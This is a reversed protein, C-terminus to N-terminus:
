KRTHTHTSHQMILNEGRRLIKSLFTTLLVYQPSAKLHHTAFYSPEEKGKHIVVTSQQAKLLILMFALVVSQLLLLTLPLEYSPSVQLFVFITLLPQKVPHNWPSTTNIRPKNGQDKTPLAAPINENHQDQNTMFMLVVLSSNLHSFSGQSKNHRFAPVEQQDLHIQGRIHTPVDRLNNKHTISTLDHSLKSLSDTPCNAEKFVHSYTIEECQQSMTRIKQLHM